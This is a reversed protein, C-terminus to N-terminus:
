GAQRGAVLWYTRTDTWPTDLGLGYFEIADSADFRGDQEGTVLLPVEVGDAFLQLYRPNVRPDLGAAVLEFQSVKYWGEAQVGLKLAVSAALRWQVALQEETPTAPSAQRPGYWPAATVSAKSRGLRNLLVSRVRESESALRHGKAPQVAIPGHWTRRGKLDIEELWYRLPGSKLPLVDWWSYSQGAALVTGARGKLASGAILSPTIRVRQGQEERYVNFGLHDVEYSTRWHLEVVRTSVGDHSLAHATKLRALSPAPSSPTGEETGITYFCEGSWNALDVTNAVGGASTFLGGVFLSGKYVGLASVTTGTVATDSSVHSWTSTSGNWRARALYQFGNGAITTFDGGVYVEGCYSAVARVAGNVGAVPTSAGGDFSGLYSGFSGTTYDGGVYLLGNYVGLAFVNNNLGQIGNPLASWATGNWSCLRDCNAPLGNSSFNGGVYLLGNYTAFSYVTSALTTGVGSWSSDDWRCINKCLTVGGVKNWNGGAYLYGNYEALAYLATLSTGPAFGTAESWNSGDWRCLRLCNAIGAATGFLGGVYLKGNYVALARVDGPSLGTSWTGVASWASGDWRCLKTCTALGNVSTFSGGVYLQGQYVAVAYVQGNLQSNNVASWNPAGIMGPGGMNNFETKIWHQDRAVASVRVEDIAGKFGLSGLRGGINLPQTNLVGISTNTSGVVPVTKPYADGDIYISYVGGPGPSWVGVVHHWTEGDVQLPPTTQYTDAGGTSNFTVMEFDTGFSGFDLEYGNNTGSEKNIITPYTGTTGPGPTAL